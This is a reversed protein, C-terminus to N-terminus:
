NARFRRTLLFFRLNLLVAAASLGCLFGLWIGVGGLGVPFALLYAGTFGIGWYSFLAIIMPITSDKLGRALGAGIAQMGDCIQFVGAVVIFPGAVALLQAANVSQPDIFLRALTERMLIFVIGSILAFGAALIIVSLAARRIGPPDGRGAHLGVRVTAAQAFGLPVMFATATLQMAIGHAALEVTGIWGMMISSVSFLSVEALVTLGIPMGLRVVEVLAQWDARWFRVFLEYERLVPDREIYVIAAVAGFINVGVAVYAAATLGFAPAGFHGLVFTYAFVANLLLVALTIWLIIAARDLASMLARLVMFVLAPFIGVAAIHLYSSALAVVDPQQGLLSLIPGSYYFLPLTLVAYALSAWLGMRISRRVNRTDGRGVAQAVMSIVANSFGTGLIFVTFFYQSAIVIAALEVTGVHGVV